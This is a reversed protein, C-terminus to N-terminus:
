FQSFPITPDTFKEVDLPRNQDMFAAVEKRPEGENAFFIALPYNDADVYALTFTREELSGRVLIQEWTLAHGLYEFTQDYEDTWFYPRVKYPHSKPTILNKAVARGHARAHEWHEVHIREGQYPWVTCDGAAYIDPISTEGYENVVIGREVQLDPHSLSTNPLVGIGIIVMQCPIVRGSATVAGTVNGAEDKTFAKLDENTLLTVGHAQHMKTFYGSAAEGLIRGLPYSAHEIVTINRGFQSLTAALELGIFGAGIIVIEQSKQAQEKIKLASDFDRLYFIGQADVGPAELTRLTSGIALVLRDYAITEGQDTQITKTEPQIRTITTQLKLQIKQELYYTEPALLPPTFQEKDHLWEKSLPPLDYPLTAQQDILTIAGTYGEQRLAKATHFGTISAGIIVIHENM